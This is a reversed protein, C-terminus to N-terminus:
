RTASDLGLRTRASAPTTIPRPRASGPSRPTKTAPRADHLTDPPAIRPRDLVADFRQCTRRDLWFAALAHALVGVFCALLVMAPSEVWVRALPADSMTALKGFSSVGALDGYSALSVAVGMPACGISALPRPLGPILSLLLGSANLAVLALMTWSLARTTSSARLSVFTGLSAAFVTMAAFEALLLPASLPHVSGAVIGMALLGAFAVATHRIGWIAGLLKARVIEAGTLPTTVLSIWTDKERESTLSAAADSAVGLLYVSAVGTAVIRLYLLFNARASGPGSVGYGLALTERFAAFAYGLTSALLMGGLALGTLLAVPRYFAPVRPVVLEKWIM